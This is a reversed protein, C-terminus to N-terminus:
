CFAPIKLFASCYGAWTSPGYQSGQLALGLRPRPSGPVMYAPCHHCINPCSTVTTTPCFRILPCLSLTGLDSGRCCYPQSQILNKPIKFGIRPLLHIPELLIISHIFSDTFWHFDDQSASYLETFWPYKNRPLCAANDRSHNKQLWSNIWSCVRMAESSYRSKWFGVSTKDKLSKEVSCCNKSNYIGASLISSFM